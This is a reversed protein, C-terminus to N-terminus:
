SSTECNQIRMDRPHSTGRTNELYMLEPSFIIYLDFVAKVAVQESM